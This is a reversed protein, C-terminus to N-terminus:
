CMMLIRWQRWCLKKESNRIKLFLKGLHIQGPYTVPNFCCPLYSYHHTLLVIVDFTDQIVLQKVNEFEEDEVEHSIQLHTIDAKFNQTQKIFQSGFLALEDGPTIILIQKNGPQNTRKSKNIKIKSKTTTMVKM